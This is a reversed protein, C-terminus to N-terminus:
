TGYAEKFELKEIRNTSGLGLTYYVLKYFMKVEKLFMLDYRIRSCGSCLLVMDPM